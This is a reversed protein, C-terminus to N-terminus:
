NNLYITLLYLEFIFEYLNESNIINFKISLLHLNFEFNTIM